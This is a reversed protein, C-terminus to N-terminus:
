GRCPIDSSKDHSGFNLCWCQPILWKALLPARRRSLTKADSGARGDAHAKDAVTMQSRLAQEMMETGTEHQRAVDSLCRRWTRAGP